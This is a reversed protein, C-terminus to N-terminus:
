SLNPSSGSSLMLRSNGTSSLCADGICQYQPVVKTLRDKSSSGDNDTDLCGKFKMSLVPVKVKLDMKILSYAPGARKSKANLSSVSFLASKM